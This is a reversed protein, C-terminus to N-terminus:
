AATADMCMEGEHPGKPCRMSRLTNFTKEDVVGTDPMNQQRQVGAIGSEGVFGQGGTGTSFAQSFSDDFRSAPGQWRGARWVTRKYGIVDPGDKDGVRLERPFGAVPVM